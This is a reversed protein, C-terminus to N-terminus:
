DEVFGSWGAMYNIFAEGLGQSHLYNRSVPLTVPEFDPDDQM